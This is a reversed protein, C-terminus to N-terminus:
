VLVIIYMEQYRMSCYKFILSSEVGKKHIINIGRNDARASIGAFASNTGQVILISSNCYDNHNLYLHPTNSIEGRAHDHLLLKETYIYIYIEKSDTNNVM